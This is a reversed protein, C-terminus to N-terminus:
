FTGTLALGGPLPVVTLTAAPAAPSGAPFVREYEELSVVSTDPQTWIKAESVVAGGVIGLVATTRHDYGFWRIAGGALNVVAGAVHPIWSKGLRAEFAAKRLAKEAAGLAQRREDPTSTAMSRLGPPAFAAEPPLAVTSLLGLGSSIAGITADIRLDRDTTLLGVAGHGATLGLFAASWGWFWLKAGGEGADLRAQLFALRRAVQADDLPPEDARASCPWSLALTVALAAGRKSAHRLLVAIKRPRQGSIAL